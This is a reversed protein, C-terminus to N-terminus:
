TTQRCQATQLASFDQQSLPLSPSLFVYPCLSLILSTLLALSPCLASFSVSVSLCLPIHRVSLAGKLIAIGAGEGDMVASAVASM